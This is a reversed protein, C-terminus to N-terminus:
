TNKIVCLATPYGNKKVGFQPSLQHDAIYIQNDKIVLDLFNYQYNRPNYYKESYGIIFDIALFDAIM